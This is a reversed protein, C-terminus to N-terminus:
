NGKKEDLKDLILKKNSILRENSNDMDIAKNIYDLAEKYNGLYYDALSLLDYPTYDWSFAENIYTKNHETIMLAKLVNEKVLKWDKLNYALLAKEIYPDRLYPTEKIAKNLWMYAEDYRNLNVYCRSIYRMSAAKEDRWNSTELNIHKILMDISKNWEEHYYYERGLYHCIRDNDPNEKFALELLNLYSSRSKNRDPYHNLIINENTVTKEIGEYKLVEHVPYIWKYGQRKHIKDYIFSIKPKGNEDISWNYTYYLRTTNNEWSKELEKRWGKVLVEDLDTCVCIDTDEPVMELSINRANDFRWPNIIEQKVNINHKKLKEVTKDNSGTDLVYIADAEKMSSYWRDVFKEENKSIAYVCIKM